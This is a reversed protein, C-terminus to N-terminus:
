FNLGIMRTFLESLPRMPRFLRMCAAEEQGRLESGSTKIDYLVVAAEQCIVEVAQNYLSGSKHKCCNEWCLWGELISKHISSRSLALNFAYKMHHFRVAMIGNQLCLDRQSIPSKMMMHCLNQRYLLYQVALQLLLYMLLNWMWAMCHDPFIRITLVIM